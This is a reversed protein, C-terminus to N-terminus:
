RRAGRTLQVWCRSRPTSSNAITEGNSHFFQFRAENIISGGIVQTDTLQLTQHTNLSHYGRSILNFSGIGNDQIDARSYHYRASLTNNASVQYDIRPSVVLRRQPTLFVDTFPNVAFTQPDVTVANIISGNDIADRRVDLFFSTRKNIPGSVNGGYEELRFPAKQAAYPNRSNWVDDSFNFFGNGHFKDTGPKTFVEIRGYGLKDYEPSFPNQNIRIERISEKPPLEGGSFGDIYISGGNPGASPGALAQLDQQLDDPDDSLADLDEGRLVLASANNAADPSVTPGANDEVTVQQLTSAIKLQLNLTQGGAGLTVKAPQALALDPAAAKVTYSGPALATFSYAGDSGSTTTKVTGSPGNLTVTAGPIVAGSEDTIQGRLSATQASLHALGALVFLILCILKM